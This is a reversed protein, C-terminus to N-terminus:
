YVSESGGNCMEIIAVKYAIADPALSVDHVNEEGEESCGKSDAPKDAPDDNKNFRELILDPFAENTQEATEVHEPIGESVELVVVLPANDEPPKKAADDRGTQKVKNTLTGCFSRQVSTTIGLNM